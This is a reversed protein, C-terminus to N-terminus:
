LCKESLQTFLKQYYPYKDQENKLFSFRFPSYTEIQKFYNKSYYIFSLGITETMLIQDSKNMLGKITNLHKPIISDCYSIIEDGFNYTQNAYVDLPNKKAARTFITKLGCELDQKVDQLDDVLQLFAGYGFMFLRQADNLTGAVLYGDALVSTGGKEISINLLEDESLHTDSDLLALSKMQAKHISILSDYVNPYLYRDYQIEIMGILEYIKQEHFDIPDLAEGALRNSLRQNFYIKNERTIDPDDIYNDTYPYLMSYAFISPTLEVRLGLMLQLCNMTWVNRCAQFIDKTSISHDFSKATKIFQRTVELFNNKFLLGVQEDEFDFTTSLLKKIAPNLASKNLLDIENNSNKKIEKELLKFFRKVQRERKLKGLISYTIGIQPAKVSSQYWMKNFQLVSQQVIREMSNSTVIETKLDSEFM